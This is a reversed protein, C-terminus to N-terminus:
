SLEFDYINKQYNFDREDIYSINYDFYTLQPIYVYIYVDEHM